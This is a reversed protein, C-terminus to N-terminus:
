EVGADKLIRKITGISWDKKPHPVTVTKGDKVLQHHSGKIRAVVWGAKELQDILDRENVNHIARM